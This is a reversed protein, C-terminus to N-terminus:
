PGLLLTGGIWIIPWWCLFVINMIILIISLKTKNKILGLIATILGVVGFLPPSLILLGGLGVPSYPAVAVFYILLSLFAAIDIGFAVKTFINQKKM